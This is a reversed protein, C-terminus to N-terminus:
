HTVQRYNKAPARAIQLELKRQQVPSTTLTPINELGVIEIYGRAADELMKMADDETEGQTYLDLEPCYVVFGGDNKDPILEATLVIKKM